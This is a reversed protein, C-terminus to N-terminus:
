DPHAVRVSCSSAEAGHARAAALLAPEGIRRLALYEEQAATWEPILLDALALAPLAARVRRADLVVRSGSSAVSVSRSRSGAPYTGRCHNGSDQPAFWTLNRRPQRAPM